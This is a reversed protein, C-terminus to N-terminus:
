RHFHLNRVAVFGALKQSGDLRHGARGSALADASGALFQASGVVQKPNATAKLAYSGSPDTLEAQRALPYNAEVYFPYHAPASQGTAVGYLGPAAIVNEGPYPLSGFGVYSGSMDLKSQAVPGGGDVLTEVVLYGPVNYTVRAGQATAVGFLGSTEASATPWVGPGAIFATAFLATVIARRTM